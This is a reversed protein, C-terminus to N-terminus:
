QRGRAQQSVVGEIRAVSERITTVTEHLDDHKRFLAEFKGNEDRIHSDLDKKIVAANIADQEIRSLKTTFYKWLAAISSLMAAVTAAVWAVVTGSTEIVVKAAEKATEVPM